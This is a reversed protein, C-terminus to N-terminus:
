ETINRTFYFLVWIMFTIIVFAESIIHEPNGHFIGTFFLSIVALIMTLFGLISSGTAKDSVKKTALASANTFVMPMGIFVVFSSIFFEWINLMFFRSYFLLALCGGTMLLLGFFMVKRSTIYNSIGRAVLTGIIYGTSTFLNFAGFKAPSVGM